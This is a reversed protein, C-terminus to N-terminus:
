HVKNLPKLKSLMFIPIFIFIAGLIYPAKSGLKYYIIAAALPGIVRSLAGLSRFTGIAHGQSEKPSYLSVLTTLCPIILASGIALFFLGSYLLASSFANAIILLGPIILFMGMLAMKKEGVKHASRRVVGGQVFAILFGIFIFIYANDMSTYNLREFALFTLTFEMGSFATLFVFYGYNVLNVGPYPLPKLIKFINSSRESSKNGRKEQPLTEKFQFYVMFLNISSLIFAILAPMSFPNVGYNKLSPFYVTLDILSSIGGVAPGIIFGLAFAIGIIAMGKSREEVKTIDAVVATATSINGGMIGGIIRSIILLTFSGSFFWILYSFIMGLLSYLLVPRRGIRDSYAGWIPAAIFQLFSYLAGLIGGFLVIKSFEMQQSDFSSILNVLSFIGNLFFNESDVELYHKALTPFLPFIISFGLLDLFITLFVTKLSKKVEPAMANSKLEAEKMMKFELDLQKQDYQLKDEEIIKKNNFNELEVVFSKLFDEQDNLCSIFTLEGGKEIVSEKLEHGLEDITELCDTLFSPSYVAFKKEGKLICEDIFDDTYPTLWEEQGFRSQFTLSVKEKSIESLNNKILFYTVFSEYYYPDGEEIVRRKPLGHFSLILRDINEGKLKLAKLDQDIKKASELIFSKSDFFSKKLQYQLNPERKKFFGNVKDIVSMTTSDSYQPYLPVVLLELDPNSKKEKLFLELKEEVRPTSLIFAEEVRYQDYGLFMQIKKAINATHTMLPFLGNEVIRSYLKATKKPRTPLIFLYLIIKWFFPNVDIVRRDSLFERLYSRVDSVKTSRPSGLNVLLIFTKVTQM